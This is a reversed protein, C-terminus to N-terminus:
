LDRAEVRFTCNIKLRCCKGGMGSYTLTDMLAKKENFFTCTKLGLISLFHIGFYNWKQELNLM